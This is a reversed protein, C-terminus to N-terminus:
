PSVFKASWVGTNKVTIKGRFDKNGHTWKGETLRKGDKSLVATYATGGTAFSVERKAPDWKSPAEVERQTGNGLAQLNFISYFRDADFRNTDLQKNELAGKWVVGKDDKGVFEWKGLPPGSTHASPSAAYVFPQGQFICAIMLMVIAVLIRKM